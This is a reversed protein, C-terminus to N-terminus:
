IEPRVTTRRLSGEIDLPIYHKAAKARMSQPWFTEKLSGQRLKQLTARPPLSFLLGSLKVSLQGRLRASQRCPFRTNEYQVVLRSVHPKLVRNDLLGYSVRFLDGGGMFRFRRRVTDIL